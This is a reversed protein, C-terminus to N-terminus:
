LYAVYNVRAPRADAGQPAEHARAASGGARGLGGVDVGQEALVLVLAVQGDLVSHTNREIAVYDLYWELIINFTKFMIRSKGDGM